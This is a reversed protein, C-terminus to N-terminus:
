CIALHQGDPSWDVSNVTGDPDNESRVTSWSSTEVVYFDNQSGILLHGGSPSFEVSNFRDEGGPNLNQIVSADTMNIIRVVGNTGGNGSRGIAIAAMEGDPSLDIDYAYDGGGVDASITGHVSSMNSAYFVHATDDDKTVGVFRGDGSWSVSALEGGVNASRYNTGTTANWLRLYGNEDSTAISTGDPSHDVDNFDYNQTVAADIAFNPNSSVWGDNYDSTGDGDRDPCGDRDTSSNGAAYPYDDVSDDVGDGDSDAASAMPLVLMGLMLAALFTSRWKPFAM